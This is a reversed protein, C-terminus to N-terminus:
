HEAYVNVGGTFLIEKLNVNDRMDAKIFECFTM